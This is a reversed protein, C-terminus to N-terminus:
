LIQPPPPRYALLLRLNSSLECCAFGLPTLKLSAVKKDSYDPVRIMAEGRLNGGQFAHSTLWARVAHKNYPIVGNQAGYEEM